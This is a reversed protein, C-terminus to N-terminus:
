KAKNEKNSKSGVKDLLESLIGASALGIGIWGEKNLQHGNLFISLLVVSKPLM